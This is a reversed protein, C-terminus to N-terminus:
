KIREGLKLTAITLSFAAALFIGILAPPPLIFIYLVASILLLSIMGLALISWKKLNEGQLLYEGGQRIRIKLRGKYRGYLIYIIMGLSILICGAAFILFPYKEAPITM